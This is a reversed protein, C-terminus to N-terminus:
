FRCIAVLHEHLWVRYGPSEPNLSNYSVSWAAGNAHIMDDGGLSIAVHSISDYLINSDKDAEGFFLLDGPEPTGTVPRGARCQQDADRPISVGLFDWFAQAFGSCDFGFPTRGGWLYPVGIFRRVLDLTLEIGQSNSQPQNELLLLGSTQVKWVEGGPLKVLSEEDDLKEVMLRVGFPLRGVRVNSSGQRNALLIEAIVRVGCATHYAEVEARNCQHLAATHIWGLYGDRQMQIWAWDGREELIRVAEGVLVQSVRESTIRPERRLDDVPRKVLAWPSSDSLLVHLGETSLDASSYQTGLACSDVVEQYQLTTLVEGTLNLKGEEGFGNTSMQVHVDFVTLRPDPYREKGLRYLSDNIGDGRCNLFDLVREIWECPMDHHVNHAIDAPIWLEAHPIYRAIFQAHCAPANVPDIEGQIVLVPRKVQSLDGPTYNPESITEKLTLQLLERWYDAGHTPGHLGIMDNMWSPAEREVRQPDFLPPERVLLDASVYANAAQLIATQVVQPHELLTVLAVNGGNSHGIVHARSYGLAQILAAMDDAMERFSYSRRPNASQGHGRCDPVIVKGNRALLPAIKGWDSQGTNTSGHILLIPAQGPSDEGYVQYYLNVGNVEIFSM